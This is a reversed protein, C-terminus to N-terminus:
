RAIFLLFPYAVLVDLVEDTEGLSSCDLALSVLLQCSCSRVLIDRKCNFRSATGGGMRV